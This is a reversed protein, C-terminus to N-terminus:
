VTLLVFCAINIYKSNKSSQIIFYVIVDIEPLVITCRLRVSLKVM